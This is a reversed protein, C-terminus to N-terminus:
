IIASIKEQIVGNMKVHYIHTPTIRHFVSNINKSLREDPIKYGYCGLLLSHIPEFDGSGGKGVEIYEM